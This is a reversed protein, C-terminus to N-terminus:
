IREEVMEGYLMFLTHMVFDHSTATMQELLGKYRDLWSNFQEATEMNFARTQHLNGNIDRKELVLDPQSGDMPVPNCWVRCVDDDAVHNIYHWTDVLFRTVQIWQDGFHQTVIHRLLKCANDYSIYTPRTLPNPWIWSLFTYVQTLSESDYFKTWAIPYGCAWQATQICHVSRPRLTHPVQNGPIGDIDPLHVRNQVGDNGQQALDLHPKCFRGNKYNDLPRPCNPVACIWHQIVKGDIVAMNILLEQGNNPVPVPPQVQPLAVPP